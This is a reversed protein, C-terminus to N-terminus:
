ALVAICLVAKAGSALWLCAVLHGKKYMLAALSVGNVLWSISGIRHLQRRERKNSVRLVNHNFATVKDWFCKEQRAVALSEKLDSPLHLLGAVFDHYLTSIVITPLDSHSLVRSLTVQGSAQFALLGIPLLDLYNDASYINSWASKWWPDLVGNLSRRAGQLSSITTQAQGIPYLM